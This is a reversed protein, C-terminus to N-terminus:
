RVYIAGAPSRNKYDFDGSYGQGKDSTIAPLPKIENAKVYATYASKLAGKDGSRIAAFIDNTGKIAAAKSEKDKILPYAGSNFLVFANKEQAVAAFDGSNVAKELAAIRDGYLGRARAITAASVAGDAVALNPLGAVVAAGAAIQGFAVRREM